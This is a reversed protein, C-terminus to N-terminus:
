VRLDLVIGNLWWAGYFAHQIPVDFYQDAHSESAM